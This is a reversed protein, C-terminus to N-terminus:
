CDSFIIYKQMYALGVLSTSQDMFLVMFPDARSVKNATKKGLEALNNIGMAACLQEFMQLACVNFGDCLKTSSM